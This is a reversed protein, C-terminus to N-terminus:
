SLIIIREKLSKIKTQLRKKIQGFWHPCYCNAAADAKDLQLFLPAFYLTSIHLITCHMTSYQVTSTATFHLEPHLVKCQLNCYHLTCGATPHVTCRPFALGGTQHWHGGLRCVTMCIVQPFLFKKKTREFINIRKQHPHNYPGDMAGSWARRSPGPAEAM